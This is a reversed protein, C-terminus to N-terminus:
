TAEHRYRRRDLLRRLDGELRMGGRAKHQFWRMGDTQQVPSRALRYPDTRGYRNSHMGSLAASVFRARVAREADPSGPRAKPYAFHRVEVGLQEGILDTSRDLEEEAVSAPADHLLRHTHTHSGVTVIGTSVADRLAAWSLMPAGGPFPRGSDVFDTAVYLTAPVGHAVLVPLAHEAFDATGDDFTVVLPDRAPRAPAALALLADDLTAPSGDLSLREIQEEFLGRDLDVSAGTNAGVRHYALLVVGNPPRVVIDCFAALRKVTGSAFAGM